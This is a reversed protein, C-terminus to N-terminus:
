LESEVGPLLCAKFTEVDMEEIPQQHHHHSKHKKCPPFLVHHPVQIVGNKTIGDSITISIFKNVTFSLFRGFRTIDATINRDQLMTPLSVHSYGQPLGSPDNYEESQAEKKTVPVVHADSYLTHGTVIHYKMLAELCQKGAKSFLFANLKYGLREWDSNTPLFLTFGNHSKELEDILGTSRFALESTSFVTPFIKVVELATPPPFLISDVAHIVGNKAFINAKVIKSYYNITPGQPGLGVRLRQHIGEGLESEALKTIFTDRHLTDLLGHTGNVLHYLLVRRVLDKPNKHPPHPLRKFADNDPAFLTTNSHTDKLIKTLEEDQRVLNYLITTHKSHSILDFLTLNSPKEPCHSRIPNPRHHPPKV